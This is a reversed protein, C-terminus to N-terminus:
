YLIIYCLFLVCMFDTRSHLYTYTYTHSVFNVADLLEMCYDKVHHYGSLHTLCERCNWSVHFKMIMNVVTWWQARDWTLHIWGM